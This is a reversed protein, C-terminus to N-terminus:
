DGLRLTFRESGAFAVILDQVAIMGAEFDPEQIMLYEVVGDAPATGLAFELYNGAFCKHARASSALRATLDIANSFEGDVDTLTLIGSADVNKGNDLTRFGGISDYNEFAYGIPNMKEHCGSCSLSAHRATWRERNTKTPDPDPPVPVLDTPPPSQNQCLIRTRIFKGRRVPSPDIPSAFAAMVAASTLIGSRQTNPLLLKDASASAGYFSQLNAGGVTWDATFIESLTAGEIAVARAFFDRPEQRIADRLDPWTPYIDPDPNVSGLNGLYLWESVFNGLQERAGSTALLRRAQTRRVNPDGLSSLVSLLESDPPAGTLGYALLTAIEDNTLTAVTDASNGGLETHYLMAPSQLVTHVAVKLGDVFGDSGRAATYVEVLEDLEVTTPARRFARHAFDNLISRACTAEWSSQSGSCIASGHLQTAIQEAVPALNEWLQLALVDSMLLQDANVSYGNVMTDAPLTLVAEPANAGLAKLTAFYERATLRRVRTNAYYVNSVDIPSAENTAFTDLIFQALGAECDPISGCDVGPNGFPMRTIADALYDLTYENHLSPGFHGSGDERHCSACQDNFIGAITASGNGPEPTPSPIPSPTSDPLTQTAFTALIFTVLAAECNPLTGCNVGPNGLPMRAIADSLDVRSYPKRLSPGLGGGGNAGHCGSCQQQFIEAVETMPQPTGTSSPTPTPPAPEPSQAQDDGSMIGTEGGCATFCGITLTLFLPYLIKICPM